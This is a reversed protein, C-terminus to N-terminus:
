LCVHGHLHPPRPAHLWACHGAGHVADGHKVQHQQDPGWFLRRAADHEFAPPVADRCVCKVNLHGIVVFLYENAHMDKLDCHSCLIELLTCVAAM